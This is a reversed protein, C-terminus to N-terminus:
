PHSSPAACLALVSGSISDLPPREAKRQLLSPSEVTAELRRGHPSSETLIGGGAGPRAFEKSRSGAGASLEPSLLRALSAYRAYKPSEIEVQRRVNFPLSREVIPQQDNFHTGGINPDTLLVFFSLRSDDFGQSQSHRQRFAGQM